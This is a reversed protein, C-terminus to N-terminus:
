ISAYRRQTQKSDHLIRRVERRASALREENYRAVMHSHREAVDAYEEYGPTSADFLLVPSKPDLGLAKCMQRLLRQREAALSDITHTTTV